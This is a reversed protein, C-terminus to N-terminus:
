PVKAVNVHPEPCAHTFNVYQQSVFDLLMDPWSDCVENQKM